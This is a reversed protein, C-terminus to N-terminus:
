AFIVCLLSFVKMNDLITNLYTALDDDSKSELVFSNGRHTKLLQTLEEVLGEREEPDSIRHRLLAFSYDDLRSFDCFADTVM